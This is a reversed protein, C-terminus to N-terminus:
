QFIRARRDNWSEESSDWSYMAPATSTTTTPPLHPCRHGGNYKVVQNIMETINFHHGKPTPTTTQIEQLEKKSRMMGSPKGTLLNKIQDHIAGTITGTANGADIMITAFENKVQPLVMLQTIEIPDLVLSDIEANGFFAQEETCAASITLSFHFPNKCCAYSDMVLRDEGTRHLTAKSWVQLGTFMGQVRLAWHYPSDIRSPAHPTITIQNIKITNMGTAWAVNIGLELFGIGYPVHVIGQTLSVDGKCEDLHVDVLEM